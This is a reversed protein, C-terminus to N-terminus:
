PRGDEHAFNRSSVLEMGKPTVETMEQNLHDHEFLSNGELTFSEDEVEKSFQRYQPMHGVQNVVPWQESDMRAVSEDLIPHPQVHTQVLPNSHTIHPGWRRKFLM